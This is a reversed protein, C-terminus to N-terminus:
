PVDGPDWTVVYGEDLGDLRAMDEPTISFDFVDANEVIRGRDASKPIVVVRHQLNWRILLQAQSKLYRRSMQVLLPDGFRRTRTLPTFAELQINRDRCYGLLEKQYHFPSFEVQNVAPVTGSASLLEELHRITYNSVGIARCGGYALIEEMARYSDRRLVPVPWHILYLDIYELGLEEFSREFASLAARYGHDDNWLKTTVFIEERPVGSERVARGVDRENGYYSATDFSRYGAEIAWGVSRRTQDGGAMNFVGLGLYPMAVGNNLEATTNMDMPVVGM